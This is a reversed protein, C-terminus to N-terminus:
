GDSFIYITNELNSVVFRNKSNIKDIKRELWEDIKTNKSLFM